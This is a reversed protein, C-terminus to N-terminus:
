AVDRFAVDAGSDPYHANAAAPLMLWPEHENNTLADSERYAEAPLPDYATAMAALDHGEDLAAESELQRLFAVLHGLDPGARECDRMVHSAIDRSVFGSNAAGFKDLAALASRIPLFCQAPLGMRRYLARFGVARYNRSLATARAPSLGSLEVVAAEFLARNGSVLSRLLLGATLARKIRLHHVLDCVESVELKASARLLDRDRVKRAMDRARRRLNASPLSRLPLALTNEVVDYRVAIPVDHRTLLAERVECDEISLEAIRRFVDQSLRIQTNALLAIIVQRQGSEVLFEAVSAPLGPRRALATHILEDGDMALKGLEADTLLPSQRVVTESVYSDDNILALIIHRPALPTVAVAEALARRVVISPDLVLAALCLDADRM